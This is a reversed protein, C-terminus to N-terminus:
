LSICIKKWGLPMSTKEHSQYSLFQKKFKVTQGPSPASAVEIGSLRSVRPDERPQFLAIDKLLVTESRVTAQEKVKIELAETSPAIAATLLLILGLSTKVGRLDWRNIIM